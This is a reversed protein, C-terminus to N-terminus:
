PSPLNVKFIKYNQDIYVISLYSSTSPDWTGLTKEQPGWFIYSINFERILDIRTTDETATQYFAEVRPQLQKLNVSEPGHGILVRVPAWAPLANSTEFSALVIASKPANEALYNFSQVEEVPLFLPRSLTNASIFGGTLLVLLPTFTLYMWANAAKRWKGSISILGTIGLISLVVWIGEPLRRQLNYPAYALVPFLIIWGFLLLVQQDISKCLRIIGLIVFPLLVGFALLYDTVPPSTIINQTQWSHLIPDVQFSIFTYIVLPASIFVMWFGRWFQRWWPQWDRAHRAWNWLAFGLLHVLLVAWAVVVTLPQMFGLGLLFIGGVIRAAWEKGQSDLLYKRLGWLLFARGLALHPLTFIELFGFTEPSYFELPIRGGWLSGLGVVSLIALGGGFTTVALTLRRARGESIFIAIFDYTALISLFGAVFRFLHFLAILQDHRNLGWTLKGLLYYPLFALFGKQPYPTYPTRFLWDGKAGSLMKALYSNGDDSGILFGSFRWATGQHIFGWIYPLTTVVMVILAFWIVWKKEQKTVM